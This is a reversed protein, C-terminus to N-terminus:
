RVRIPGTPPQHEPSWFAGILVFLDRIDGDPEPHRAVTMYARYLGADFELKVQYPIKLEGGYPNDIFERKVLLWNDKRHWKVHESRLERPDLAGRLRNLEECTKFFESEEDELAIQVCNYILQKLDGLRMKTIESLTTM